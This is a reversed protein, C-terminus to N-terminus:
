KINLKILSILRELLSKEKTIISASGAITKILPLEKGFSTMLGNPFTIELVYFGKSDPVPSISSVRGEIFGFEQEPFAPLRIIARQGTEVKGVGDMPLLAKGIPVTADSPIVVFMTENTEVIQNIKWLQMFAVTGSVPSILLFKEEWESITTILSAVSNLVETEYIRSENMHQLYNNWTVICSSYSSQVSGLGPIRNFFIAELKEIQSGSIKWENLKERLYLMDETDAVNEIVGLIENKRVQQKNQAYLYELRGSTKAMIYAPPVQTTLTFESDVSDPYSYFASGVVLVTFIIFLITIGYRLISSPINNMVEQVEESRLEINNYKEEEM